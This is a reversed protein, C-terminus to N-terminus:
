GGTQAYTSEIAPPPAIDIAVADSPAAFPMPNIMWATYIMGLVAVSLLVLNSAAPLWASGARKRRYLVFLYISALGIFVWTFSSLYDSIVHARSFLPTEPISFRSYFDVVTPCIFVPVFYLTVLALAHVMTLGLSSLRSPTRDPQTDM